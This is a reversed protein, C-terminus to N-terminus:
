PFYEAPLSFLGLALSQSSAANKQLDRSHLSLPEGVQKVTALREGIRLGLSHDYACPSDIPKDGFSGCCM